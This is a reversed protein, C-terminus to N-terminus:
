RLRAPRRLRAAREKSDLNRSWREYMLDASADRSSLDEETVSLDRRDAPPDSSFAYMVADARDISRVGRKRLDQKQEVVIKGNRRQYTIATLQRRLTADEVGIVIDKFDFREHLNWYHMSRMNLYNYPVPQSGRFPLARSGCVKYADSFSGAGPGDADWIVYRPDYRDVMPSVVHHWFQDIRWGDQAFVEILKNGRRVAVVSESDGYSALDVGMVVQDGSPNWSRSLDYSARSVLVDLGAAWFRAEVSTEWDFSGPGKSEAILQDLYHPSILEAGRPIPEAKTQRTSSLHSIKWREAIEENSMRALLPTDWAPIPIVEWADTAECIEAAWTNSDSPNFIALVRADGSATLTNIAGAMMDDLAAAEDIVVLVHPSHYGKVGEPKAPSLGTMLRNGEQVRMGAPPVHGPFDFQRQSHWRRIEGWLNDRLQDERASTTVVKADDYCAYFTPALLGALATKGSSNCSPVAVRARPKSMARFIRKQISWLDADFAAQAAVDLRGADALKRLASSM